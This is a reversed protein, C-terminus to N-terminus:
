IKILTGSWLLFLYFNTNNAPRGSTFKQYFQTSRSITNPEIHGIIVDDQCRLTVNQRDLVHMFPAAYCRLKHVCLRIAVCVGIVYLWTSLSCHSTGVCPRGHCRVSLLNTFNTGSHAAARTIQLFSHRWIRKFASTLISVLM